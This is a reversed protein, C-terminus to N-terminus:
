EIPRARVVLRDKATLLPTCTYLTLVSDVTPAEAEVAEPPVVVIQDVKYRHPEQQWYVVIEDGVKVKDLNYFVSVGDYTFRHGVLVTNSGQIPTSSQPRRWVGRNVASIDPGEHIKEKLGLSPIILTNEEPVLAVDVKPATLGSVIPVDHRVWWTIGPLFPWVLIYLAQLLLVLSLLTNLRRNTIKKAVALFEM